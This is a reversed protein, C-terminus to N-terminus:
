GPPASLRWRGSGGARYPHQTGAPQGQTLAATNRVGYAVMQGITAAYPHGKAAAGRIYAHDWTLGTWVSEHWRPEEYSTRGPQSSATFLRMRSHLGVDFAGSECGAIDIWSHGRLHRLVSAFSNESIFRNDSGWLFTHGRACPGRSAICVHGSYHFLTFTAPTSHAVLWREAAIIARASAHGDRLDRIHSPLWGAHLLSRRVATADGDGGYTPETPSAYHSIGIIVAWRKSPAAVLHRPPLPHFFTVALTGTTPASVQGGPCTGALVESRVRSRPAISLWPSSGCFTQTVPSTAHLPQYDVAVAVPRGTSDQATARVRTENPQATIWPGPSSVTTVGGGAATFGGPASYSTAATRTQGSTTVTPSRTGSTPAASTRVPDPTGALTPLAWVAAGLTAGITATLLGTRVRSARVQSARYARSGTAPHRWPREEDV